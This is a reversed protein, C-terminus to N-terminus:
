SHILTTYPVLVRYGDPMVFYKDGPLVVLAWEKRQLEVADEPEVVRTVKETTRGGYTLDITQEEVVYEGSIEPYVLKVIDGVNLDPVFVRTYDASEATQQEEKLRRAAYEAIGEDSSLTVDDEAMIVERGRSVTSLPSKPDDDRQVAILNGSSARFVNPCSFWNRTINLSTEMIDLGTASFTIEPQTPQPMFDVTGDGRISLQWGIADLVKDIMSLNTEGSEAVIHDALDPTKGEFVVPAPSATLLERLIDEANSGAAAYWGRQLIIDECPKLVSYCELPRIIVAGSISREPASVVGTFIANHSINEDQRADMFVRIWVEKTQDFDTVEIDATQRLGTKQRRVSGSKIGIKAKETWSLPDIINAYYTAKFGAGYNM